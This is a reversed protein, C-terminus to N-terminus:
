VFDKSYGSACLIYELTKNTQNQNQEGGGDEKLKGNVSEM